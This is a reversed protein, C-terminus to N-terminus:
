GLHATAPIHEFVIRPREKIFCAPNGAVVTYEPVDRTVVSGSGIVAAEGISVGPLVIIRIPLWAYDGIHIPGNTGEFTPSDLHHQATLLMVDDNMLVNRGITVEAWADIHVKGALKTGEGITVRQPHRIWVRAGLAVPAAIQAGLERWGHVVDAGLAKRFAFTDMLRGLSGASQAAKILLRSNM